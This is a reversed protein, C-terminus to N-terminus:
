LAIIKKDTSYFAQIKPEGVPNQKPMKGVMLFHKKRKRYRIFPKISWQISCPQYVVDGGNCLSSESCNGLIYEKSQGRKCFNIDLSQSACYFTHLFFYYNCKLWKQQTTTSVPHSLSSIGSPSFSLPLSTESCAMGPNQQMKLLLYISPKMMRHHLMM